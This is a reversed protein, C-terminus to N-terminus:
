RGHGRVPPGPAPLRSLSLLYPLRGTAPTTPAPCPARHALLSEFGWGESGLDSTRLMSAYRTLREDESIAEYAQTCM